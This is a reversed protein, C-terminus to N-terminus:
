SFSMFIITHDICCACKNTVLVLLKQTCLRHENRKDINARAQWLFAYHYIKADINLKKQKQIM